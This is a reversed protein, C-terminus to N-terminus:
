NKKGCHFEQFHVVLMQQLQSSLTCLSLSEDCKILEYGKQCEIEM